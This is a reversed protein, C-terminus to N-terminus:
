EKFYAVLAPVLVAAGVNHTQGPLVQQRVNPLVKVLEEIARQLRPQTKSGYMALTPTKLAALRAPIQWDGMITMDYPLTHAVAQLKRWMGRMLQMMFIFPAPVDVMRMFYKVAAGRQGAAVLARLKSAHDIAAFRPDDVMYPPEYVALKMIRAGSAAAELALAAGSSLGVAYVSGGAAGILAEIDEIERAKAYPQADGSEGRGRRDYRYVTFHSQLLEAIKQMPGFVRSCLAGDILLVAPGSGVRDYAVRTGDKSTVHNM